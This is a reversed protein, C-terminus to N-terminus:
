NRDRDVTGRDVNETELTSGDREPMSRHVTGQVLAAYAAEM